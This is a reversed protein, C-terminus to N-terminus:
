VRSNNSCETFKRQFYNNRAHRLTTTFNNEFSNYQDFTVIGNKCLRFLKHIWSFSLLMSIWPKRLRTFYIEKEKIPRSKSYLVFLYNCFNNTNARVDQNIQVHNNLYHEVEIKLKALNQGSHDRFKVRIQKQPCNIPAITFIPYHDIIDLLFFVMSHTM